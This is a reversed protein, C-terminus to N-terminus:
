DFFYVNKDNGSGQDSKTKNTVNKCLRNANDNSILAYCAMRGAWNFADSKHYAAWLTIGELRTDVIRVASPNTQTEILLSLTYGENSSLVNGDATGPFSVDLNNWQKTYEGNALYYAEQAKVVTKAMTILNSLRAKDVALRYQPLAVAALIGIILVVVLLEILTFGQRINITKMQINEKEQDTKSFMCISRSSTYDLTFAKYLCGYNGDFVPFMQCLVVTATKCRLRSDKSECQIEGLPFAVTNQM